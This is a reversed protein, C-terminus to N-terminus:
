EAGVPQGSRSAELMEEITCFKVRPRGLPEGKQREASDIAEWGAFSVVTDPSREALLEEISDVRAVDESPAGAVPSGPSAPIRGPTDRNSPPSSM